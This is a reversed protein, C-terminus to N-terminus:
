ASGGFRELIIQIQIGTPVALWESTGVSNEWPIKPKTQNPKTQNTGNLVRQEYIMELIEGNTV